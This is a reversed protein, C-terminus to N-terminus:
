RVCLVPMDIRGAPIGSASLQLNLQKCHLLSRGCPKCNPDFVFAYTVFMHVSALEIFFCGGVEACQSRGLLGMPNACYIHPLAILSAFAQARKGEAASAFNGGRSLQGQFMPFYMRMRTHKAESAPFMRPKLWVRLVQVNSVATGRM